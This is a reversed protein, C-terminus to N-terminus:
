PSILSDLLSLQRPLCISELDYAALITTRAAHRIASFADPNSLAEDVRDVLAARDFFDVLLGNRRDVIVEEVPATRSGIVLCGCAMAQLVSWSLVFPYTLYVHASSVQLCKMLDDMSLLGTFCVRDLDIDVEALLRKKYSDGFPLNQGYGVGENGVIVIQADAHRKLLEPLGRMFVHFGRYPELNRAVYTVVKMGPRLERGDPLTYVADPNPRNKRTDIGEHIISMKEQMGAPHTSYQWRTPTIGREGSAWSMLAVANKIRLSLMNDISSPYEPDFAFDQGVANYFFEWYNLIPVGPLADKVFLTEGWGAHGIVIDPKVGMKCLHQISRYVAQGHLVADELTRLYPHNNPTPERTKPYIVQTVNEIRNISNQTVFVVNHGANRLYLCMYLFQGPM